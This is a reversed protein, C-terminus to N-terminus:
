RPNRRATRGAGSPTRQRRATLASTAPFLNEAMFDVFARLRPPTYGGSPWLMHFHGSHEVYDDLWRIRIPRM